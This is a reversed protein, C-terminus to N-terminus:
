LRWSAGKNQIEEVAGSVVDIGMDKYHYQKVMKCSTVTPSPGLHTFPVCVRETNNNRVVANSDVIM